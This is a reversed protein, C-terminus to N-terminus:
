NIAANCLALPSAFTGRILPSILPIVAKCGVNFYDIVIEPADLYFAWAFVDQAKFPLFKFNLERVDAILGRM